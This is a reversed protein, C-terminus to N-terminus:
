TSQIRLAGPNPLVKEGSGFRRAIRARAFHSAVVNGLFVKLIRDFQGDASRANGLCSAAMTKAVAEGGVQEFVAVVYACDLFEQPM